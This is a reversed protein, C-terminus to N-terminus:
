RIEYGPVEIRVALEWLTKILDEINSAQMCGNSVFRALYMALSPDDKGIVSQMRQLRASFDDRYHYFVKDCWEKHRIMQVMREESSGAHDLPAPTPNANLMQRLDRALQMLDLQLSSFQALRQKMEIAKRVEERREEECQRYSEQARSLDARHQNETLKRQRQCEDLLKRLFLDEPLILWENEPRIVAAERGDFSYRVTIRKVKGGVPDFGHFLDAGVLEAYSNGHLRELLYHTVDPDNIGEIGYHAEIIRLRSSPPQLNIEPVKSLTPTRSPRRFFYFLAFFIVCALIFLAGIALWDVSGHKVIQWIAGGISMVVAGGVSQLVGSVFDKGSNEAM